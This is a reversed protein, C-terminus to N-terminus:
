EGAGPGNEAKGGSIGDIQEPGCAHVVSPALSVEERQGLGRRNDVWFLRSPRIRFVAAAEYARALDPHRDAELLSAAVDPFKKLFIAVARSRDGAERVVEAQAELQVGQIGRWGGGWDSIAAAVSASTGIARAHRSAPDSLFYLTFGHSAYFVAAAWPGQDDVTALTLVSQTGLFDLAL